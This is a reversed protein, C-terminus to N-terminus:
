DTEDLLGKDRLNEYYADLLDVGRGIASLFSGLPFDWAQGESPAYIAIRLQGRERYIEAPVDIDRGHRVHLEVVSRRRHPPSTRDVDITVDSM